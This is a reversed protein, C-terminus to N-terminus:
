YQLVHEAQVVMGPIKSGEILFYDYGVFSVPFRGHACQTRNPVQYPAENNIVFDHHAITNSM